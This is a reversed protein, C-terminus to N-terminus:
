SWYACSHSESEKGCGSLFAALRLFRRSRALGHGAHRVRRVRSDLRGARIRRRSFQLCLACSTRHVDITSEGCLGVRASRITIFAIFVKSRVLLLTEDWVVPLFRFTFRSTGNMRTGPTRVGGIAPLEGPDPLPLSKAERAAFLLASRVAKRCSFM